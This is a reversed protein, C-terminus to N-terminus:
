GSPESASSALHMVRLYKPAPLCVAQQNLPEDFPEDDAVTYRATNEEWIPKRDRALECPTLQRTPSGLESTALTQPTTQVVSRSLLYVTCGLAFTLIGALLTTSRNIM